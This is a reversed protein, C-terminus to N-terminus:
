EAGSLIRLVRYWFVCDKVVQPLVDIPKRDYAPVRLDQLYARAYVKFGEFPGSQLQPIRHLLRLGREVRHLENAPIQQDEGFCMLADAPCERGAVRLIEAIETASRAGWDAHQARQPRDYVKWFLPRGPPALAEIFRNRVDERGLMEILRDIQIPMVLRNFRDGGKATGLSVLTQVDVDPPEGDLWLEINGVSHFNRFILIHPIEGNLSDYDLMLAARLRRVLDSKVDEPLIRNARKITATDFRLTAALGEATLFSLFEALVANPYDLLRSELARSVDHWKLDLERHSAGAEGFHTREHRKAQQPDIGGRTKVEICICLSQTRKTYIWADPIGRGSFGPTPQGTEGEPSEQNPESALSEEPTVNAGMVSSCGAPSIGLVAKYTYAIPSRPPRQLGWGVDSWDVSVAGIPPVLETLLRRTVRPDSLRLTNILAHTVNNEDEQSDLSLGYRRFLNLHPDGWEHEM